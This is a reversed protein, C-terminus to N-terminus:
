NFPDVSGVDSISEDRAHLLIEIEITILVVVDDDGPGNTIDNPLPRGIEDQSTDRSM